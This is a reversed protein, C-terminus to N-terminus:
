RTITLKAEGPDADKVLVTVKGLTASEGEKLTKSDGRYAVTVVDDGIASVKLDYKWIKTKASGSTKVTVDCTNGKCTKSTTTCGALGLILVPAAVAALLIRKTRM